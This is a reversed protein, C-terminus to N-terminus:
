LTAGRCRSGRLPGASGGSTRAGTGAGGFQKRHGSRDGGTWGERCDSCAPRLWLGRGAIPMWARVHLREYFDRAGGEMYRSFRDYDGAMWINKLRTKLSEVESTIASTSM